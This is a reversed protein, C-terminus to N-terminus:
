NVDYMYVCGLGVWTRFPRSNPPLSLNHRSLSLLIPAHPSESLAGLLLSFYIIKLIIFSITIYFNLACLAVPFLFYIYANGCVCVCVCVCVCM